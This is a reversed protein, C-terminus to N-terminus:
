DNRKRQLRRNLAFPSIGLLRAAARQNDGTRIMAEKILRDEAESLTPFSESVPVADTGTRSVESAGRSELYQAIYAEAEKTNNSLEVAAFVLSELERVNGPFPYRKMRDLLRKSLGPEGKQFREAARTSFYETLVAIDGTRMRLPPIRIVHSLRYYLDRRFRGAKVFADIDANTAAVIRCDSVHPRDSGVPRYEGSEMFRLLKVQMDTDLEGIEDLFLTGGLAEEVLGKRASHAGTYAGKTHGFLTDSFIGPDLAGINERVLAGNRGSLLHLAEAFLEKGTGSEGLILVPESGSAFAEMTRFLDTMAPDCTVIRAFAGPNRLESRKDERLRKAESEIETREVARRILSYLRAAAVPKVAFDFAGQKMCEVATEVADIESVAIVPIEPHAERLEALLALGSVDPMALDLVIVSGNGKQVAAPLDSGKDLFVINTIGFAALGEGYERSAAADHDAIVVPNRPFVRPRGTQKEPLASGVANADHVRAPREDIDGGTKQEGSVEDSPSKTDEPFVVEVTTDGSSDCDVSIRGSHLAIYDRLMSNGQAVAFRNGDPSEGRAPPSFVSAFGSETRGLIDVRVKCTPKERSCSVKVTSGPSTNRLATHVLLFLTKELMRQNANVAASPDIDGCVLACGRSEALPVLRRVISIVCGALDIGAFAMFDFSQKVDTIESLEGVLASLSRTTEDAARIEGLIEAPIKKEPSQFGSLVEHLRSLPVRIKDTISVMLRTLNRQLRVYAKNSDELERNLLELSQASTAKERLVATFRRNQAYYYVGLSMSSFAIGALPTTPLPIVYTTFYRAFLYAVCLLALCAGTLLVTAYTDFLRVFLWLTFGALFIVIFFEPLSATVPFVGTLMENLANLHIGSLPYASELPITGYDKRRTSSDSLFVLAGSLDDYLRVRAGSDNEASLLRHVPFQIFSDNWPGAFSLRMMGSEDIPIRIAPSKKTEPISLHSGFAVEIRGPDVDLYSCLLELSLAPWYGDRYRYLLPLRRITGDPDVLCNIHGLGATLPALSGAPHLVHAAQPPSGNKVIKPHWLFRGWAEDGAADVPLATGSTVIVPFHIRDGASISVPLMPEEMSLARETIFVDCGVDKIGADGLLSLVRAYLNTNDDDLDLIEVTADNIVAHILHPSVQRAGFLRYGIRHMFDGWGEDFPALASVLFALLFSLVICAGKAIGSSSKISSGSQKRM